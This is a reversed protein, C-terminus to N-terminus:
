EGRLIPAPEYRAARRLPIASGLLTVAAALALIVLLVLLSPEPEVGFIRAGAFRALFIGLSYGVGGGVFALVLQEAALLFGVTGSGAGLAKMLGIETRREIVSAAASAGVALAAALLAALTVMWLLAEVRTLITGEGEAVRRIVRVDAGPLVEKIQYAISSIYPTCSWRELDAATMTKPDRRAFDDEPKTLASVYLTRYLGPKGAFQQVSSLPMVVAEDEPGGSSLIGTVQCESGVRDASAPTINLVLREGAHLNRRAALKEGVVCEPPAAKYTHGSPAVNVRELRGEDSFWKGHIQFWPNTKGIGTVFTGGDPLSVRHEAWTGILSVNMEPMTKEGSGYTIKPLTAAIELVPAFAMLNNHWFITKLKPLDAEPLYAGANAPRYDVGGIELPLSDAQPTVVLNAGLSRFERALRDGVDLSVSLAATVVAMGLSLAAATLVKRRPRRTFSDAVLRLFM